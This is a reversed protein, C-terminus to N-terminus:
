GELYNLLETSNPFLVANELKGSGDILLYGNENWNSTEVAVVVYGKEMLYDYTKEQAENMYFDTKKMVSKRDATITLM